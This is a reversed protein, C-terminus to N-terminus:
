VMRKLFCKYIQLRCTMNHTAAVTRVSLTADTRILVIDELKEKMMMWCTQSFSVCCWLERETWNGTPLSPASQSYNFFWLPTCYYACWHSFFFVSIRLLSNSFSFSVADTDRYSSSFIIGIWASQVRKDTWTKNNKYWYHKLLTHKISNMLVCCKNIESWIWHFVCLWRSLSSAPTRWLWCFVCFLWCVVSCCWWIFWLQVLVTKPGVFLQLLFSSM